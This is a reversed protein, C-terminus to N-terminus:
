CVHVRTDNCAQTSTGTGMHAIHKGVHKGYPSPTKPRGHVLGNVKWCHSLMSKSRSSNTQVMAGGTARVSGGSGGFVRM